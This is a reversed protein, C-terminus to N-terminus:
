SEEGDAIRRLAAADAVVYRGRGAVRVVGSERLARLSRVVVERVTGLEEAVQLQTGGLSVPRGRGADRQLVHSALRATVNRAALGDLREVLHRVRLALRELFIWAVAPDRTMAAGIAERGIILCRTPEAAVATAPYGGGAFLPIEGLTGGEGEVHVVRQRGSSIQLVRVRGEVVVHLGGAPTGVTFLTEGADYRRETARAALERLAPAGLGAFPRLRGLLHMDIM